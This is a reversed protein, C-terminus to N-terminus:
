ASSPAKATAIALDPRAWASASRARAMISRCPSALPPLTLHSIIPRISTTATDDWFMRGMWMAKMGSSTGGRNYTSVRRRISRRSIAQTIVKPRIVGYMNRGTPKPLMKRLSIRSALTARAPTSTLPTLTVWAMATGAAPMSTPRSTATNM